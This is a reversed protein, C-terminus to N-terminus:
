LLPHSKYKQTKQPLAWAHPTWRTLHTRATKATLTTKLNIKQTKKKKQM